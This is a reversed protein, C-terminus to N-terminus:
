IITRKTTIVRNMNNPCGGNIISATEAVMQTEAVM